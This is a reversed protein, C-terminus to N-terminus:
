FLNKSLSQIACQFMWKIFAFSFQIILYQEQINKQKFIQRWEDLTFPFKFSCGHAHAHGVKIKIIEACYFQMGKQLWKKNFKLYVWIYLNLLVKNLNKACFVNTFHFLFSVSDKYLYPVVFHTLAYFRLIRASNHFDFTWDM